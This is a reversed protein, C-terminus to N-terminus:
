GAISRVSILVAVRTERVEEDCGVLGVDATIYARGLDNAGVDAELCNCGVRNTNGV